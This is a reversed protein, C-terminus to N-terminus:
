EELLKLSDTCLQQWMRSKVETGCKIFFKKAKDIDKLNMSAEGALFLLQAKQSDSKKKSLYASAFYKLAEKNKNLKILNKILIIDVIPSYVKIKLIKQLKLIKKAYLVKVMRDNTTRLIKYFIDLNQPKNSFTKEIENAIEIMNQIDEKQAYIDFITYLIDKFRNKTDLKKFDEYLKLAEEYNGLRYYVKIGLYYWKPMEELNTLNKLKQAIIKQADQYIAEQYYCKALKYEDDKTVNAKYRKVLTISYLCSKDINQKFLQTSAKKLYSTANIEKIAEQLALIDKYRKEKELIDLKKLFAKKYLPDGKYIKMLNNLEVMKKSINEDKLEISTKDIREKIFSKYKGYPYQSLYKKYTEYASIYDKSKEQWYGLNKLLEESVEKRNKYLINAIKVASKYDKMSAFRKALDFSGKQTVLFKPEFKLIKELYLKADKLNKLILNFKTLLFASQLAIKSNKTNYFLDYLMKLAIKKYKNGRYFLNKIKLLLAKQAYYDNKFNNYVRKTLSYAKQRQGLKYLSKIKYFMAETFHKNSAFEKIYSNSNEYLDEYTYNTNDYELIKDIAKLKLLLLESRFSNGRRLERDVSKVVNEYDKKQYKKRIFKLKDIDFSNAVPLLNEDLVGIAYDHKPFNIDFSLTNSKISNKLYKPEKQFFIINLYKVKQNDKFLIKDYIKKDFTVIKYKSKPYIFLYSNRFEFKFYDFSKSINKDINFNKCRIIDQLNINTSKTCSFFSDSDIELIYKQKGEDKYQIVNIVSAKLNLIVILLIIIYKMSINHCLLM